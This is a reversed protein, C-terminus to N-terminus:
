ILMWARVVPMRTELYGVLILLGGQSVFRAINYFGGQWGAYAAQQKASLSAIYLGDAAIDHTSSCFAVVAFLALAYRFYNPMALCLATAALSLGGAFEFLVVFFKKTKFMELLPSWIPKLSWPLLLWSTYLAIIDNPFGLRKYFIGAILSVIFFPAGEAFYLTPVWTAPNTPNRHNNGMGVKSSPPGSHRTLRALSLHMKM